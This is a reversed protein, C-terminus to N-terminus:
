QWLSRHHWYLFRVVFIAGRMAPGSNEDGAFICGAQCAGPRNENGSHRSVAIRKRAFSSTNRITEEMLESSLREGLDLVGAREAGM